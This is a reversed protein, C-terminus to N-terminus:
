LQRPQPTQGGRREPSEESRAATGINSGYLASVGTETASGGRAQRRTPPAHRREDAVALALPVVPTKEHQRKRPTSHSLSILHAAVARRAAMKSDPPGKWVDLMKSGEVRARDARM